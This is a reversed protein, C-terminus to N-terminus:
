NMLVLVMVQAIVVRLIMTLPYVTAYAVTPIETDNISVAFALAPPDTMSGALLGCLSLYNVKLFLRAILAVAFLPVFTILSALAMWYLGDGHTLTAIFRDGSNLGVCSLFLVIGLERMIFNASPPMFWVLPGIRHIRSLVIAVLLPGGALGLKVPAPIGPVSIPWSGVIVGLCIGVFVPIIEPYDLRKTSNGLVKAVLEIQDPDGVVLVSDGFQLQLAPGAPLDVGSRRLRTIRVEFREELGLEGITEGLVEKQTVVVRKPTISSPVSSLDIPTPKGVIMRFEALAENRGVALVIDGLALTTAPHAVDVTGEHMIRSLVVGLEDVAPVDRIAVGVLNPNTVELNMRTLAPTSAALVENLEKTERARDIRFIVRTLLMTLIIGLIGFPYAVAYGVGPLKGMDHTYSPLQKLAAQAAALSPTNTTAGSFLGVAVPVDVGGVFVILVAIAAGLLVIGAAMLNLSLGERRLSGLFGPGVQIGITYVFLILGFERAFELVEHNVTIDFHGFFLGSFLVGSIGLSIGFVRISGLALGTASVLGLILISSAISEGNFLDWFWPM